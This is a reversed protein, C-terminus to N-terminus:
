LALGGPTYWNQEVRHKMSLGLAMILAVIGDIKDSSKGKDPRINGSEDQKVTVNSAMWRLVPNENQQLMGGIVLRELEKTPSALEALSQRYKELKELPFGEAQLTQVMANAPGWPDYGLMQIDFQTALECIDRVITAYDTTNGETTRILEREVWNLVQRRDRAAAEDHSEKPVWFYPLVRHSEPFYLVLSNVDRTSALDLGAFCPEGYLDEEGFGAKCDDWAHMPLWRISQETWQSLHLRRFTNEYSPSEKAKRAEQALYDSNIAIDLNPNAKAWTRPDFPDDEPDASAIFGFWSDDILVGECVKRTYEHNEWCITSRDYGATTISLVLPNKRAGTSTTLVDWLHRTKHKHLEDVLCRSINLGDLTDSDSALPKYTGNLSPCTISHKWPQVRKLLYPSQALMHKSDTFMITAQDKMTAAAYVEAGQEGDAILGQLAFVACLSTKGNKRAMEVYGTNFRRKGNDRYWGFLPAILCHEQWPEPIFPRGHFEGKWHKLLGCFAVARRAEDERWILGRSEGEKLDSMQRRIAATELASRPRGDELLRELADLRPKTENM